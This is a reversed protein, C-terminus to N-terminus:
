CNATGGLAVGVKVAVAVSVAVGVNVGVFVFVRVGNTGDMVGVFARSCCFGGIMNGVAVRVRFGVLVAITMEVIVPVAVTGSGGVSVGTGSGDFVGGGGGGVEVGYISISLWADFKIRTVLRHSLCLKVCLTIPCISPNIM